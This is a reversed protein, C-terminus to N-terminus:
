RTPLQTYTESLGDALEQLSPMSISRVKDAESYYADKLRPDDVGQEYFVQKWRMYAHIMPVTRAPIYTATGAENIGTSVYLLMVETRGTTLSNVIVRNNAEDLKIYGQRNIGGSSRYDDWYGDDIDEGEEDDSNLSAGSQSFVLADKETLMWYQGSIPVVVGIFKLYDSPLDITKIDTVTLKKVSVFGKLHFMKAEKFAYIALQLLRFYESEPQKSLFMYEDVAQKLTPLGSIEAM